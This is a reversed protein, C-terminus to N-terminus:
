PSRSFDRLARRRLKGLADRPLAAHWVFQVPLQFSALHQRCFLDLVADAPYAPEGTKAPTAVLHAVPRQGWVPDSRGVVAADAVDPHLLLVREVQEPSVNEGGSIIIDDRRGFVHVHGEPSICGADGTVMPSALLPGAVCLAGQANAHIHAFPMPPGADISPGEDYVFRTALQSAAETMGWSTVVPMGLKAARELLAVPPPAGGLVIARLSSPFPKALRADLVRAFMTPVLPALTVQHADMWAAAEAADFPHQLLVHTGMFASRYLVMLGGVHHLPLAALWTDSPLTGLRSAVGFASCMVQLGTLTIATPTKTSGSTTLRVLPASLQWDSAAPLAPAAPTVSQLQTAALVGRPCHQLLLPTRADGVSGVSLGWSPALADLRGRLDDDPTNAPVLAPVVGLAHCAYLCVVWDASPAGCLALTEGPAVGSAALAGAMALSRAHLEAFALKGQACSLAIHSPRARAQAALPSPVSPSSM